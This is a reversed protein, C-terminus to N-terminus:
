LRLGAGIPYPVEQSTPISVDDSRDIKDDRVINSASSTAKDENQETEKPKRSRTMKKEKKTVTAVDQSSETAKKLRQRKASLSKLKEDDITTTGSAQSEIQPATDTLGYM